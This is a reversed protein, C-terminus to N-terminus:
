VLAVEDVAEECKSLSMACFAETRGDGFWKKCYHYGVASIDRILIWSEPTPLTADIYWHKDKRLYERQEVGESAQIPFYKSGGDICYFTLTNAM